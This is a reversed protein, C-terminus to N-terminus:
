GGAILAMQTFREDVNTFPIDHGFTWHLEFQQLTREIGITQFNKTGALHHTEM